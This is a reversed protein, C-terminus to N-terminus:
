TNRSNSFRVYRGCDEPDASCIPPRHRAHVCYTPILYTKSSSLSKLNSKNVTPSNLGPCQSCVHSCGNRRIARWPNHSNSCDHFYLSYRRNARSSSSQPHARINISPSSEHATDHDSGRMSCTAPTDMHSPYGPRAGVREFGPYTGALASRM